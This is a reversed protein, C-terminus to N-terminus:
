DRSVANNYRDIDSRLQHFIYDAHNPNTTAVLRYPRNHRQVWFTLQGNQLGIRSTRLSVPTSTAIDLSFYAEDDIIVLGVDLQDVLSHRSLVVQVPSDCDVVFEVGCAPLNQSLGTIEVIRYEEPIAGIAATYQTYQITM